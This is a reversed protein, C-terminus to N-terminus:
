ANGAPKLICSSYNVSALAERLAEEPTRHGGGIECEDMGNGQATIAWNWHPVEGKTSFNLTVRLIM